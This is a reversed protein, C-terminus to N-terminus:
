SERSFLVDVEIITFRDDVWEDFREKYYENFEDDVKGKEKERMEFIEFATYNDNLWYEFDPEENEEIFIAHLEEETVYYTWNEYDIYINRSM